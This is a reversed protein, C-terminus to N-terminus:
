GRQRNLRELMAELDRMVQEHPIGEGREIEAEGIEIAELLARADEVADGPAVGSQEGDELAIRLAELLEEETPQTSSM